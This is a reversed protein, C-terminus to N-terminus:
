RFTTYDEYWKDDSEAKPSTGLERGGERLALRDFSWLANAQFFSLGNSLRNPAAM